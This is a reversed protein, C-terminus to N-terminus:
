APAPGTSGGGHGGHGTPTSEQARAMNPLLGMAPVALGLGAAHRIFSRRDGQLLTGTGMDLLGMGRIRETFRVM